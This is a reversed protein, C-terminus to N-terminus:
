DDKKSARGEKAPRSTMEVGRDRDRERGAGGAAAGQVASAAPRLAAARIVPRAINTACPKM